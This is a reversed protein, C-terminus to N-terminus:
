NDTKIRLRSALKPEYRKEVIPMLVDHRGNPGACMEDDGAYPLAGVSKRQLLAVAIPLGIFHPLISFDRHVHARWHITVTQDVAVGGPLLALKNRKIGVGAGNM